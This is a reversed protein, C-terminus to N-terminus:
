GIGKGRFRLVAEQFDKTLGFFYALLVYIGAILQYPVLFWYWKHSSPSL